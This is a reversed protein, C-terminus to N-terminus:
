TLDVSCRLSRTRLPKRWPSMIKITALFDSNDKVGDMASSLWEQVTKLRGLLRPPNLREEPSLNPKTLLKSNAM